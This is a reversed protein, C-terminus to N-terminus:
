QGACCRCGQLATQRSAGEAPARGLTTESSRCSPRQRRCRPSLPTGSKGDEINTDTEKGGSSHSRPTM